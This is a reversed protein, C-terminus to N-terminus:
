VAEWFDVTYGKIDNEVAKIIKDVDFKHKPLTKKLRDINFALGSDKNWGGVKFYHIFRDKKSKHAVLTYKNGIRDKINFIIKSPDPNNMQPNTRAENLITTLKMTKKKHQNNM